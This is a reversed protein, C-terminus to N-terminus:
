KIGNGILWDDFDIAAALQSSIAKFRLSASPLKCLLEVISLQQYLLERASHPSVTHTGVVFDYPEDRKACTKVHEYISGNDHLYIPKPGGPIRYLLSTFHSRCWPCIASTQTVERRYEVIELEIDRELAGQRIM